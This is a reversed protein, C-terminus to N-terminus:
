VPSPAAGEANLLGTREHCGLYEFRLRDADLVSVEHYLRLGAAGRFHKVFTGFAGFIRLHTRHSRSWQELEALSHWWSHGYTKEILREGDSLQMLRNAYCGVGLGDTTLFDMGERLVPQIDHLWQERPEDVTDVWDQGSRILAMGDHPRVIVHDGAREFALTGHPELASTQSAPLRDRMSGWYAHEAIDDSVGDATVAIGEMRRRSGTITEFDRARPTAVEIFFGTEARDRGPDTWPEHASEWRRYAGEDLWYLATLENTFGDPDVVVALDHHSPGDAAAIRERLDQAAAAAAPPREGRYQLGYYAMVVDDVSTPFRASFAPSPPNWGERMRMPQTRAVALHEPISSEM